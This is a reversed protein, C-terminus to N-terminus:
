AQDMLRFFVPHTLEIVPTRAQAAVLKIWTQFDAYMEQPIDYTEFFESYTRLDKQGQIVYDQWVYGYQFYPRATPGVFSLVFNLVDDFVPIVHGCHKNQVAVARVWALPHINCDLQTFASKLRRAPEVAWTYGETTWIPRMGLFTCRRWESGRFSKYKVPFGFHAWAQVYNEDYQEPAIDTADFLSVDSFYLTDDGAVAVEVAGLVVTCLHNLRAPFELDPALAYSVSFPTVLLAILSNKQSTDPVGSPLVKEILFFIFAGFAYIKRQQEFCNDVAVPLNEGFALRRAVAHFDYSEESHHSDMNVVDGEGVYVYSNPDDTMGFRGAVRRLWKNLQPPDSCGAYFLPGGCDCKMALYKTLRHAYPGLEYLYHPNPSIIVRPKMEQKDLVMQEEFDWEVDHSKEQKTFCKARLMDGSLARLDLEGANKAVRVEEMKARKAPDTFHSFWEDRDEPQLAGMDYPGLIYVCFLPILSDFYGPTPVVRKQKGLRCCFGLLLSVPGRPFCRVFHGPMFPGCIRGRLTEVSPLTEVLSRLKALGEPESPAYFRVGRKESIGFEFTPDFALNLIPEPDINTSYVPIYGFDIRWELRRRLVAQSVQAPFKRWVNKCVACLHHHTRARAGPVHVISLCGPPLHVDAVQVSQNERAALPQSAATQWLLELTEPHALGAKYEKKTQCVRRWLDRTAAPDTQTGRADMRARWEVFTESTTTIGPPPEHRFQDASSEEVELNLLYREKWMRLAVRFLSCPVLCGIGRSFFKLLTPFHLFTMKPRLRSHSIDAAVIGAAAICFTYLFPKVTRWESRLACLVRQFFSLRRSYSVFTFRNAGVVYAGRYDPPGCNTMTHPLNWLGAPLVHEGVPSGFKLSYSGGSRTLAMLGRGFPSYNRLIAQVCGERPRALFQIVSKNTEHGCPLDTPCECKEGAYLTSSLRQSSNRWHMGYSPPPVPSEWVADSWVNPVHRGGRAMTAHAIPLGPGPMFAAIFWGDPRATEDAFALPSWHWDLGSFSGQEGWRHVFLLIPFDVLSSKKQARGIECLKDRIRWAPKDSSPLPIIYRVGELACALAIVKDTCSFAMAPPDAPMYFEFGQLTQSLIQVSAMVPDLRATAQFQPDNSAQALLQVTQAFPILPAPAAPAAAM